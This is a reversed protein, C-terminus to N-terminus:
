GGLLATWTKPGVIGDVSLGQRGQFQRVAQETSPGFKGDLRGEGNVNRALELVGAAALLGQLRRESAKSNKLSDRRRLTPLNEVLTETWGIDRAPVPEPVPGPTAPASEVKGAPGAPVELGKHEAGWALIGAALARGYGEHDRVKGVRDCEWLVAPMTTRRLFHLRDHEKHWSPRLPFGAEDVANLLKDAASKGLESGPFWFGFAGRPAGQWDHHVSVALDAGWANAEATYGLFNPDGKVQHKVEVGPVERLAAAAARVIPDGQNQETLSGATAGPDNTGNPRRGHGVALYVKM